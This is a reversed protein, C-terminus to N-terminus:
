EVESMECCRAHLALFLFDVEVLGELSDFDHVEALLASEM